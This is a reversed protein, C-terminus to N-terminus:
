EVVHNAGEFECLRLHNEDARYEYIRGTSGLRIQWGKTIIQSSIEDETPAGLSTDPFDKEEVSIVEISSIPIGLRKSLDEKAKEISTERNLKVFKM